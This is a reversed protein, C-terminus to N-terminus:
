AAAGVGVAPDELARFLRIVVSKAFPAQAPRSELCGDYRGLAMTVLALGRVERGENPQLLPEPNSDRVCIRVLEEGTPLIELEVALSVCRPSPGRAAAAVANRVVNQLALRLDFTYVHVAIGDPVAGLEVPVLDAGIDLEARVSGVVSSLLAGDISTRSLGAVLAALERDLERLKACARELRTAAATDAVTLKAELSAIASVARGAARFAPDNRLLDFRPGLVRLFSGLHGVWALTLPEGGYLRRLRSPHIPAGLPPEGVALMRHKLFEHRLCGVLFAIAPQLEPHDHALRALSRRRRRRRVALAAAGVLSLAAFWALPLRRAPNEEFLEALGDHLAAREARAAQADPGKPRHALFKGYLEAARALADIDRCARALPLYLDPNMPALAFGASLEDRAAPQRARLLDIGRKFHADAEALRRAAASGEPTREDLARWAQYAAPDRRRWLEEARQWSPPGCGIAFSWLLALRQAGGMCMM